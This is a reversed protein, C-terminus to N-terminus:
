AEWCTAASGCQARDWTSGAGQPDDLPLAGRNFYDIVDAKSIPEDGIRDLRGSRGLPPHNVAQM